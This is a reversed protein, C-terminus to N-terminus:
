FNEQKVDLGDLIAQNDAQVAGYRCENVYVIVLNSNKIFINKILLIGTIDNFFPKDEGGTNTAFMKADYEDLELVVSGNIALADDSDQEITICEQSLVPHPVTFVVILTLIFLFWIVIANPNIRM